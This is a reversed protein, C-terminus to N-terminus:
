SINLLLNLICYTGAGGTGGEVYVIVRAPRDRISVTPRPSFNGCALERCKRLLTVQFFSGISMLGTTTIIGFPLQIEHMVHHWFEDWPLRKSFDDFSIIKWVKLHFKTKILDM